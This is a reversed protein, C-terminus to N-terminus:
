TGAAEDWIHALDKPLFFLTVYMYRKNSQEKWKELVNSFRPHPQGAPSQM